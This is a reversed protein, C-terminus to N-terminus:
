LWRGRTRVTWAALATLIDTSVALLRGWWRRTWTYLLCQWNTYIRPLSYVKILFLALLSSNSGLDNQKSAPDQYAGRERRILVVSSSFIHNFSAETKERPVDSLSLLLFFSFCLCVGLNIDFVIIEECTSVTADSQQLSVNFTDDAINIWPSLNMRPQYWIPAWAFAWLTARLPSHSLHYFFVRSKSQFLSCFIIFRPQCVTTKTPQTPHLSPLPYLVFVCTSLPCNHTPLILFHACLCACVCLETLPTAIPWCRPIKKFNFMNKGCWECICLICMM